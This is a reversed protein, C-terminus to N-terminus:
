VLLPMGAGHITAVKVHEVDM